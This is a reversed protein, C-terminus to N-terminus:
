LINCKYLRILLVRLRKKRYQKLKLKLVLTANNIKKAKEKYFHCTFSFRWLIEDMAAPIMQKGNGIFKKELFLNIKILARM